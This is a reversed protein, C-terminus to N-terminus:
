AKGEKIKGKVLDDLNNDLWDIFEDEDDGRIEGSSSAWNSLEAEAKKSLELNGSKQAKQLEKKHKRVIDQIKQGESVTHEKFNKMGVYKQTEKTTGAMSGQYKGIVNGSSIYKDLIKQQKLNLKMANYLAEKRNTTSGVYAKKSAYIRSAKVDGAAKGVYQSKIQGRDLYDKLIESQIPNLKMAACLSEYNKGWSEAVIKKFAQTTDSENALRLANAVNQDKSLGKKMKEIKNVAGTMNGGMLLALKVAKAILEPPFKQNYKEQM